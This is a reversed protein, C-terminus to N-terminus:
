THTQRPPLALFWGGTAGHGKRFTVLGLDKRARRFTALSWGQQTCAAQLEAVPRPGDQLAQQLLASCGARGRAITTDSPERPLLDMLCVEGPTPREIRWPAKFKLLRNNLASQLARLRMRALAFPAGPYLLELLESEKFTTCYDRRFTQDHWHLYKAGKVRGEFQDDVEYLSGDLLIDFLRHQLPPCDEGVLAALMPKKRRTNKLRELTPRVRELEWALFTDTITGDQLKLVPRKAGRLLYAGTTRGDSGEISCRRFAGAPTSERWLDSLDNQAQHIAVEQGNVRAWLTKQEHDALHAFLTSEDVGYEDLIERTVRIPPM